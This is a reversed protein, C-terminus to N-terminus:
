VRGAANIYVGQLNAISMGGIPYYYYHFHKVAITDYHLTVISLVSVSEKNSYPM